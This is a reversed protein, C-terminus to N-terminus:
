RLPAVESAAPIPRSIGETGMRGFFRFAPIGSILVAGIGLGLPLGHFGSSAILVAVMSLSAGVLIVPRIIAPIPYGHRKLRLAFHDPTTRYFPVGRMTRQIMIFGVEFFPIFGPVVLTAGLEPELRFGEVILIGYLLGLPLSGADGLLVRAPHRNWVLFGGVGGAAALAIIGLAGATSGHLILVVGAGAFALVGIWGLLGDMVDVVNWANAAMVLFPGAIMAGILGFDTMALYVLICVGQGLVKVGPHLARLDDVLGLLGALAVPLLISLSTSEGTVGLAVAILVLIVAVGGGMAAGGANGTNPNARDVFGVRRAGAAAIWVALCSLCFAAGATAVLPAMGTWETLRDM